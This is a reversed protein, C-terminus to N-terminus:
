GVEREPTPVVVIQLHLIQPKMVEIPLGMAQYRAATQQRLACAAVDKWPMGRAMGVVIWAQWAVDTVCVRIMEHGAWGLDDVEDSHPYFRELIATRDELSTYDCWGFFPGEVIARPVPQISEWDLGLDDVITHATEKLESVPTAQLVKLRKTCHERFLRERLM